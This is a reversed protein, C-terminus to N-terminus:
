IRCLEWLEMIVFILSVIVSVGYIVWLKGNIALVALIIVLITVFM